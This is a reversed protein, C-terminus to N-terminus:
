TSHRPGHFEGHSHDHRGTIQVAKKGNREGPIATFKAKDGVLITLPHDPDYPLPLIDGPRMERIKQITLTLTGSHVRIEGPMEMLERIFYEAWTSAEATISVMNKLKERLPDLTLYPIILRMDGKQNGVKVQFRAILVEVEPEVINVMRSNNEVKLLTSSLEILPRFARQMDHNAGGMLGKLVTLELPTLPRDLATAEFGASAGLMIELLAFALPGDFHLLAGYKLPELGLVAIAGQNKLEALSEQFTRSDIAQRRVQFSRQLNNTLSIGYNQAFTDLTLDFNPIRKDPKGAQLYLRCLDIRRTEGPAAAGRSQQQEEPVTEASVRGDRVAALLDAIEEKTLIPEV